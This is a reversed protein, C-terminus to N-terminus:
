SRLEPVGSFAARAARRAAGAAVDADAHIYRAAQEGYLGADWMVFSGNRRLTEADVLADTIPMRQTVARQNPCFGSPDDLIALCESCHAHEDTVADCALCNM